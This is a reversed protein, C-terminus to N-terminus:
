SQIYITVEFSSTTSMINNISINGVGAYDMCASLHPQALNGITDNLAREHAELCVFAVYSSHYKATLRIWYIAQTKDSLCSFPEDSISADYQNTNLDKM